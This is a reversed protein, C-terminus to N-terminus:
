WDNSSILLVVAPLLRLGAFLIKFCYFLVLISDPTFTILNDRYM